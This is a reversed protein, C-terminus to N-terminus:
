ELQLLLDGESGVVARQDSLGPDHSDDDLAARDPRVVGDRHFQGFRRV